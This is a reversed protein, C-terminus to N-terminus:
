EYIQWFGNLQVLIMGDQSMQDAWDDIAARVIKSADGEPYGSLPVKGFAKSPPLGMAELVHGTFDRMPRGQSKTRLAQAVLGWKIQKSKVQEALEQYSAM